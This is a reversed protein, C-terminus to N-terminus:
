SYEATSAQHSPWSVVLAENLICVRQKIFRAWKTVDDFQKPIAISTVGPMTKGSIIDNSKVPNLCSAVIPVTSALDAKQCLANILTFFEGSATNLAVADEATKTILKGAAQEEPTITNITRTIVESELKLLQLKIDEAETIFANEMDYAIEQLNNYLTAQAQFDVGHFVSENLTPYTAYGKILMPIAM